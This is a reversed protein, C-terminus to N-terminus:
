RGSISAVSDIHFEGHDCVVHFGAKFEKAARSKAKLVATDFRPYKSCVVLFGLRSGILPAVAQHKASAFLQDCAHAVNKGKLEVLVSAGKDESVLYDSRVGSTVLCGDVRTVKYLLRSPNKFTAKRKHEEVKVLSHTMDVTCHDTM